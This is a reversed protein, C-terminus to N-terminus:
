ARRTGLQLEWEDPVNQLNTLGCFGPEVETTWLVFDSM